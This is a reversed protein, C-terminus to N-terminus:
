TKKSSSRWAVTSNLKIEELTFGHGEEKKILVEYPINKEDLADM